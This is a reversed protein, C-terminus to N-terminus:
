NFLAKVEEASALSYDAAKMFYDESKYAATNLDKVAVDTGDVSVTGSTTGTAVSKVNGNLKATVDAGLKAETVAADALETESISKAVVTASIVNEDNIALQIQTANEKAKYTDILDTVNVYLHKETESSDVTNIIFDMYKEGVKYGAEPQDNVTVTKLSADKVLYDKPINISDGVQTGLNDPGVYNKYLKYTKAYGSETAAEKVTYTDAAPVSVYLGEEGDGTELTLNNGEKASLKVAITPEDETGGIEISKDAATVSTVGNDDAAAKVENIATVVDKAETELNEVQGIESLAKDAKDVIETLAGEVTTATIKAGTDDIAVDAAKGSKAVAALSNNLSTIVGTVTTATWKSANWEGTIGSENAVYLNGDKVVYSGQAYTSASNYLVAVGTSVFFSSTDPLTVTFAAAGTAEETKYFSVVKTGADYAISKFSKADANDVYNVLSEKFTSLLSLDILKKIDAM